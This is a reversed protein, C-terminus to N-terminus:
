REELQKIKLQLKEVKKNLEQVAKTTVALLRFDDIYKTKKDDNTHTYVLSDDLEQLEDAIIGTKTHEKAYGFKDKKWDFSKFNIKSILDLCDQNSEKINFKLRIDSSSSDTSLRWAGSSGTGDDFYICRTHPDYGIFRIAYMDGGVPNNKYFNTMVPTGSIEQGNFKFCAQMRGAVTLLIEEVNDGIDNGREFDDDRYIFMGAPINKTAKRGHIQVGIGYTAYQTQPVKIQLCNQAPQLFGYNGIKITGGNIVAGDIYNGYLRKSTLKNAIVDGDLEIKNARIKVSEASQNIESVIDKKSVKLSIETSTQKIESKLEELRPDDNLKFIQVDYINAKPNSGGGNYLNLQTIDQSPTFVWANNESIKRYNMDSNYVKYDANNEIDKAKFTVKYKQGKLLKECDFYIDNGKIEKNSEKCLNKFQKLDEKMEKVTSKIENTSQAIETSIKNEVNKVKSSIEDAKVNFESKVKNINNEATLKFGDLDQKLRTIRDANYQGIHEGLSIDKIESDEIGKYIIYSEKYQEPVKFSLIHNSYFTSSYKWGILRKDIFKKPYKYKYRRKDDKYTFVVYVECNGKSSFKFNYAKGKELNIVEKFSNNKNVTVTKNKILNEIIATTESILTEIENQKVKLETLQEETVFGNTLEERAKVTLKDATISNAKIRDVDLFGTLIRDANISGDNGISLSYPGDWGNSSGMIGGLGIRLVNKANEKPLQDVYYTGNETEIKHGFLLLKEFRATAKKIDEDFKTKFDYKGIEKQIETTITDQQHTIFESLNTARNIFKIESKTEDETYRTYEIIRHEEKRKTKHNLFTVIDHLKLKIGDLEVISLEYEILPKSYKELLEECHKKLNLKDTFRDDRFVAPIINQNYKTNEVYEKGGNISEFTMNDKGFGYIRTYHEFTDKKIIFDELNIDKSINYDRKRGEDVVTLIKNKCDFEFTCDYLKELKFIASLLSEDEVELTRRSKISQANRITWNVKDLLQHLIDNLTLSDFKKEGVFFDKKLSTFDLECTITNEDINKVIFQNENSIFFPEECLVEEDEDKEFELTILGDYQYTIKCDKELLKNKTKFFNLIM